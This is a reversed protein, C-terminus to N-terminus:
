GRDGGGSRAEHFPAFRFLPWWEVDDLRVTALPDPPTLEVAAHLIRRPVVGAVTGDPALHAYAWLQGRQALLRWADLEEHHTHGPCSSCWGFTIHASRAHGLARTDTWAIWDAPLAPGAYEGPDGARGPRIM